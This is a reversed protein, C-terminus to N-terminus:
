FFAQEATKGLVWERDEQSSFEFKDRLLALGDEYTEDQV